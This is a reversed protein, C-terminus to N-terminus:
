TFPPAFCLYRFSPHLGYIGESINPFTRDKCFLISSGHAFTFYALSNREAQRIHKVSAQNVSFTASECTFMSPKDMNGYASLVFSEPFNFPPSRHTKM